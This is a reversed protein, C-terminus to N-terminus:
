IENRRDRVGYLITTSESNEIIPGYFRKSREV